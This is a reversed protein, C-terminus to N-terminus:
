TVIVRWEGEMTSGRAQDNAKGAGALGQSMGM